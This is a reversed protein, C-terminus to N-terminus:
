FRIKVFLFFIYVIILHFFLNDCSPLFDSKISKKNIKANNIISFKCLVLDSREETIKNICISIMEKELEDDADLFTVYEGEMMDLGTNRAESLGSNKITRIIVNKFFLTFSEAIQLSSDTSGDNILIVELNKYTQNKVSELCRELYEEENYFAIIISVLPENHKM